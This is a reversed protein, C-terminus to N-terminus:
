PSEPSDVPSRVPSSVLSEKSQLNVTEVPRAQISIDSLEFSRVRIARFGEKTDGTPEDSEYEEDSDEDSYDDDSYEESGSPDNHPEDSAGLYVNVGNKRVYYRRGGNFAARAGVFALWDDGLLFDYSRKCDIVGMDMQGGFGQVYFKIPGTSGALNDFRGDALLIGRNAPKLELGLDQAVHLGMMTRDNSPNIIANPYSRGNVRVTIVDGLAKRSVAIGRNAVTILPPAAQAPNSKARAKERRERSDAYVRSVAAKLQSPIRGGHKSITAIDFTLNEISSIFVPDPEVKQRATRKRVADGGIAEETVPEIAVVGTTGHEGRDNSEFHGIGVAENLIGSVPEEEEWNMARDVVKSKAPSVNKKANPGAPLNLQEQRRKQDVGTTPRPTLREAEKRIKDEYTEEEYQNHRCYKAVAAYTGALTPEPDRNKVKFPHGSMLGRCFVISFIAEADDTLTYLTSDPKSTLLLLKINAKMRAIYRDTLEGTKQKISMIEAYTSATTRPRAIEARFDTSFKEKSGDTACELAWREVWGKAMGDTKLKAVRHYTLQTIDAVQYVDALWSEVDMDQANTWTELNSLYFTPNAM